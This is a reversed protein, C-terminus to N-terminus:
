GGGVFMVIEIRAGDQIETTNWVDRKVITRDLEIAVREPPLELSQLVDRLTSKKEFVHPEGNVTVHVTVQNETSL